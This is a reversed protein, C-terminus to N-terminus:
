GTERQDSNAPGAHCYLPIIAALERPALKVQLMGARQRLSKECYRDTFLTTTGVQCTEGVDLGSMDSPAFEQDCLLHLNALQSPDVARILTLAEDPRHCHCLRLTPHLQRYIDFRKRWNDHMAADSDLVVIISAPTFDIQTAIWDATATRPFTLRITTGQDFVTDVNLVGKNHELMNWVLQMGSDRVHGAGLAKRNLLRDLMEFNMGQGNDQVAVTMTDVNGDLRIVLAANKKGPLGSVANNVLQELARKFRRYQVTIFGFQAMDAIACDITVPAKAYEAQKEKCVARVLASLLVPEHPDADFQDALLMAGRAQNILRLQRVAEQLNSITQEFRIRQERSASSVAPAIAKLAAVSKSLAKIGANAQQVWDLLAATSRVEKQQLDSVEQEATVDVATGFIGIVNKGLDTLPYRYVTYIRPLGTQPDFVTEEQKQMQSSACVLNIQAVVADAVDAPQYDHPCRGAVDSLRVAGMMRVGAQNAGLLKADPDMWFVPYPMHQAINNLYDEVHSLQM